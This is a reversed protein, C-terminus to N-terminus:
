RNAKKLQKKRWKMMYPIMTNIIHYRLKPFPTMVINFVNWLKFYTEWGEEPKDNSWPTMSLYKEYQIKFKHKNGKRWPREEGLYHIIAPNKIAYEVETKTYYYADGMLQKLTKYPYFWYINYFNYRPNLYFIEKKLTGNIADQDNAFLSGRNDKYYNLIIQGIKNKKWLELNILLVGANIYPLYLMGLNEKQKKNVTAEICAGLVKEELDTNWVEDLPALNITDGDLYLVKEVEEPLLKDLVLRALVIPNWGGTDFEFDIYTDISQLPIIEIIRNYKDALELFKNKSEKSIGQGVIFVRIEDIEKNNEFVSCISAAVKAVFAENTTYVINLKGSRKFVM